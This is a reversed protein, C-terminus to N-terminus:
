EVRARGRSDSDNRKSSDASTGASGGDERCGQIWIKLWRRAYHARVVVPTKRPNLFKLDLYDYAVTADRGPPVYYVPLGHPHREVVEMGAALVANYLTSSVQCVGGGPEMAIGSGVIVPAPRFGREATRPGVTQNFSFLDGPGVVTYNLLSAALGANGARNESGAVFTAYEGLLEVARLLARATVRPDIPALVCELVQNPRALCARDVTRVVDVEAGRQEPVVQGTDRNLTANRPEVRWPAAMERVAAELEARLLGGIPRGDLRVGPKVGCLLRELWCFHSSTLLLFGVALALASSALRGRRVVVLRVRGM